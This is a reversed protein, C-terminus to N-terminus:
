DVEFNRLRAQRNQLKATRTGGGASEPNGAAWLAEPRAQQRGLHGGVQGRRRRGPRRRPSNKTAEQAAGPGRQPAKSPEQAAGPGM